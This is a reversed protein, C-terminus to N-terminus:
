SERKGIKVLFLGPALTSGVLQSTTKAGPKAFPNYALFKGIMQCQLHDGVQKMFPEGSPATSQCFGRKYLVFEWTEPNQPDLGESGVPEGRENVAAFFDDCPMVEKIGLLNGEQVECKLSELIQQAEM